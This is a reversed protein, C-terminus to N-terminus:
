EIVKREAAQLAIAQVDSAEASLAAVRHRDKHTGPLTLPWGADPDFQEAALSEGVDPPVAMEKLSQGGRQRPKPKVRDDTEVLGRSQIDIIASVRAVRGFDAAKFGGPVAPQRAETVEFRQLSRYELM